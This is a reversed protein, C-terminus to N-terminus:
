VMANREMLKYLEGSVKFASETTSLLIVGETGAATITDEDPKGGNVIIVASIDKLSAVAVINKHTQMTVWVEGEKARGMVDSLLDSVYAGKVPKQLFDSGTIVTLKLASIIDEITMNKNDQKM